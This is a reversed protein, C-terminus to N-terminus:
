NQWVFRPLWLCAFATLILLLDLPSLRRCQYCSHKKGNRFGRLDLAIAQYKLDKMTWGLLPTIMNLYLQLRPRLRMGKLSIGRLKLQTTMQTIRGTLVPLFHLTLSIMVALSEPLGICRFAQNFDRHSLGWLWVGSLFLILLRLAVIGATVLGTDTIRFLKLDLLLAGKPNFVLQIIFISLLLPFFYRFFRILRRWDLQRKGTLLILCALLLWALIFLDNYLIALTSICLVIILRTLPHIM